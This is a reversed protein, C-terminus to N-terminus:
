ILVYTSVLDHDCFNSFQVEATLEPAPKLPKGPLESTLTNAQLTPSRPKIGLNPLDEPSPFPLGSWYKHRSFGVFLPAQHAVTWPTVLLRVRSLSKVRKSKREKKFNNSYASRPPKVGSSSNNNNNLCYTTGSETVGQVVAHWVGRDGATEWLKSLNMDVSDTISDSWRMRKWGRRRKGEFRGLMLTKELSDARQM